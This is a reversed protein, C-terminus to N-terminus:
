EFSCSSLIMFINNTRSSSDSLVLDPINNMHFLGLNPWISNKSVAWCYSLAIIWHNVRFEAHNLGERRRSSQLDKDAKGQEKHEPSPLRPSSTQLTCPSLPFGESCSPLPNKIHHCLAAALEQQQIGRDIPAPTQIRHTSKHQCVASWLLSFPVASDM